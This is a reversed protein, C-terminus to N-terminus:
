ALLPKYKEHRDIFVRVFWCSPIVKYGRALVDDLAFRVLEDAIGRGRVEPPTYTHQFDLVRDGAPSYECVSEKGDVVAYYKRAKEDHHVELSM